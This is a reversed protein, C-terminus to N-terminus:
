LSIKGNGVWEIYKGLSPAVWMRSDDEHNWAFVDPRRIRGATIPYAFQDGNGADGFFLLNDFPMYLESFAKTTRFEINDNIIRDLPWM